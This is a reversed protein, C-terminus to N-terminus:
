APLSAERALRVAEAPTGGFAPGHGPLVLRADVDEFRALSALATARDESFPSLQPGSRGTTVAYTAIADGVCVTGHDAFHLVTSGATHGPALIIRPAGPVDLTAGDGFAEVAGLHRVRLLGRLSAWALFRLLPLPRVPGMVKGAQKVDGRALAADLEHIRVPWGQETRGREAFGIHDTHGHTLVISRVDDLTRGMVALEAVLDGWMGSAGADVITVEGSEEVLYANVWDRTGIRRVGPAIEM